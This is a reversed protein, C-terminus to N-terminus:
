SGLKELIKDSSRVSNKLWQAYLEQKEDPNLQWILRDLEKRMRVSLEYLCIAASVSINLSESFGYMPIKVHLDAQSLTFDSVGEKENGMFLAVPEEIVLDSILEPNGHPTTAIIRYGKNRLDTICNSITRNETSKYRHLTLWKHSNKTVGDSVKLINKQEITYVDQIGFCDCSRLVASANHTQYIDELVVAIHRTRLNLMQKMGTIKEQTLLPELIKIINSVNM